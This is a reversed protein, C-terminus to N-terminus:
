NGLSFTKIVTKTKFLAYDTPYDVSHMVLNILILRTLLKTKHATIAASRVSESSESSCISETNVTSSYALRSVLRFLHFFAFRSHFTREIVPWVLGLSIRTSVISFYVSDMSSEPLNMPRTVITHLPSEPLNMPHTAITKVPVTPPVNSPHGYETLSESLAV